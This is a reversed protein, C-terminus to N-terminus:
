ATRDRWRAPQATTRCAREPLEQRPSPRGEPRPRATARHAPVPEDGREMWRGPHFRWTPRPAPRDQFAPPHKAARCPLPSRDTFFALPEAGPGKKVSGVFLALVPDPRVDDHQDNHTEMGAAQLMALLEGVLEIGPPDGDTEPPSVIVKDILSRAAELAAPQGGGALAAQLTGVRQRYHGAIGPHLAPPLPMPITAEAPLAALQGELEKLRSSISPSARGESLADVLNAIKRELAGRERQSVEAQVKLTAALQKWEEHFTRVFEEVLDPRMLQQGLLKFVHEELKGRRVRSTNRCTGLRAALCGLYDKGFVSLRRDCLGCVVKGTLLYRARRKDWFPQGPKGAETKSAEGAAASAEVVLRAQVRQWLTDDIIRLEPVETVVVADAENYRRVPKGTIPDKFTSRRRWVLRGIYLENRLLGDQRRPRGRISADYWIGGGPGTTGAKNLAKAIRRPSAGDAYAHFIHRLTGAKDPDIARLGRDLEGNGLLKRVVRYGYAPSGTSRGQRIRGELGRRTKEALDKLYLAGMTGKLGIHLESVHGDALTFIPARYFSCHKYFAAIHELDRSFRDLSEAMVLDFRGNRLGEQLLQFQPRLNTAGSRAHDAFTAAITWGERDAHARCIRLQDEISADRQLDSSYRAYLAVRRTM